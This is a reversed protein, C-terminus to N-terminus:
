WTQSWQSKLTRNCIVQMYLKINFSLSTEGSRTFNSCGRAHPPSHKNDNQFDGVQGPSSGYFLKTKETISKEEGGQKIKGSMGICGKNKLPKFEV